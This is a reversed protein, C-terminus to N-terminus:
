LCRAGDIGTLVYIHRTLGDSTGYLGSRLTHVRGLKDVKKLPGACCAEAPVKHGQIHEEAESELTDIGFAM